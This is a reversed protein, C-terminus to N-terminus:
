KREERPMNKDRRRIVAGAGLAITGVLAGLGLPGSRLSKNLPIKFLYL